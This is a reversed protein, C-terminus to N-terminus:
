HLVEANDEGEEEAATQPPPVASPDEELSPAGVVEEEGEVGWNGKGAGGRKVGEHRHM